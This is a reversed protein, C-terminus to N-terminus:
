FNLSLGLSFTRTRPYINKDIGNIKVEPDVGSYKTFVFANQVTAALRLNSSKFLNRFTYGASINEIRLFSGDELYHSSFYQPRSFGTENYSKEITYVTNDQGPLLRNAYGGQSAINNYVYNGTTGRLAINADFDGYTFNSTIGFLMKPASQQFPVRDLDNVKGDGNTDEYMNADNNQGSALDAIPRGDAGYKQKFVFFSGVPQGVRLIQIENGVGGDIGERRYGQFKPDSNGELFSVVNTNFSANMGITWNMNKKAIPVVEVALELGDNKISGINTL